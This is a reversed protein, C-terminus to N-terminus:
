FKTEKKKYIVKKYFVKRGSEVDVLHVTVSGFDVRSGQQRSNSIPHTNRANEIEFVFTLADVINSKGCGNPGIVGTMGTFPGVIHHGRFSKFNEVELHSIKM